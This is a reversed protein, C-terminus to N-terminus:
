KKSILPCLQAWCKLNILNISYFLYMKILLKIVIFSRWNILSMM